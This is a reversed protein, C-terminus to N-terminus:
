DSREGLWDELQELAKRVEQLRGAQAAEGEPQMAAIARHAAAALESMRARESDAALAARVLGLKAELDELRALARQVIDHVAQRSTKGSAAIEGLSLDHFYHLELVERQRATLLGSYADFLRAAKVVRGPLSHEDEM